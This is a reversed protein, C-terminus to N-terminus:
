KQLYRLTLDIFSDVFPVKVFKSLNYVTYNDKGNRSFICINEFAPTNGTPYCIGYGTDDCYYETTYGEKPFADYPQDCKYSDSQFDGCMSRMEDQSIPFSEKQVTTPPVPIDEKKSGSKKTNKSEDSSKSRKAETSVSTGLIEDIGPQYLTINANKQHTKCKLTIDNVNASVLARIEELTIDKNAMAAQSPRACRETTTGRHCFCHQHSVRVNRKRTKKKPTSDEDLDEGGDDDVKDLEAIAAHLMDEGISMEDGEEMEDMANM